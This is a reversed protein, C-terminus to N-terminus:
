RASQSSHTGAVSDLAQEMDALLDGIDECGASMRIFGPAIADHGWRGRREASTSVGGFSTAETILQASSLFREAADRSELTFGLVAGFYSMQAAAVAHGPQTKLGPYLVGSVEDRGALFEAVALANASSRELRLPLTALSRLALWAEMPGVVGGTLTRQRDLRELLEADRTAVHGMLLDSHGCMSKSDSCVSLDAGLELPKQGLPTATTNDVAVLAGAAKAVRAVAAIDTIDLEPNSPTEVWVLRAGDVVEPQLLERGAVGRVRVGMPAFLEDLLQRGAFYTGNQIVVTDGSRLVAGFVAAVAALGSAFVRVGAGGDRSELGAIAQELHTWTPNHARAYTYKTASADGAAYFPAAFVPGAHLPEGDVAESLTARIVRTSDKM